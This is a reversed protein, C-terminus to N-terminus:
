QRVVLEIAQSEGARITLPVAAQALADLVVSDPLQETWERPVVAALYEGPRVGPIRFRGGQDATAHLVARSGPTWQTRDVSFLVATAGASGTSGTVTGLRDTVVIRAHVPSGPSFAIERDVVERGELLISLVAWGPPLGTVRITRRGPLVAVSFRRDRQVSGAFPNAGGPAPTFRAGGEDVSATSVGVAPQPWASADSAPLLEGSLHAAPAPTLALSVDLGDGAITVLQTVSSTAAGARGSVALIAYDGPPVQPSVFVGPGNPFTGLAQGAGGSALVISVSASPVAQDNADVVRVTLKSLRGSRVSFNIGDTEAAPSVAVAEAQSPAHVGPYFTSAPVGEVRGAAVDAAAPRAAVLYRGSRLGWFRYYGRDDTTSTQLATTGATRAPPEPARMVDVSLNAIPEGTDDTIFGALVAGRHLRFAIDRGATDDVVTVSERWVGVAAVYGRAAASLEYRGPLLGGSRFRGEGDTLVVAPGAAMGPGTITVRAGAIPAGSDADIVQGGVSGLLAAWALAAVAIM